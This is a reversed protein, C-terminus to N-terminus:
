TILHHIVGGLTKTRCKDSPPSGSVVFPHCDKTAPVTLGLVVMVGKSIDSAAKAHMKPPVKRPMNM